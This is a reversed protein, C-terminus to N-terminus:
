TVLLKGLDLTVIWGPKGSAAEFPSWCGWTSEFHDSRALVEVPISGRDCLQSSSFCPHCIAVLPDASMVSETERKRWREATGERNPNSRGGWLPGPQSGRVELALSFVCWRWM